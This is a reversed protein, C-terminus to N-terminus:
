QLVVFAGFAYQIWYQVQLPLASIRQCEGVPSEIKERHVFSASFGAEFVFRKLHLVLVEGTRYVTMKKFARRFPERDAKRCESCHWKDNEGLQEETGFADFCKVVSLGGSTKTNNRSPYSEHDERREFATVDFGSKHGEPSWAVVVVEREQFNVAGGEADAIEVITREASHGDGRMLQYPLNHRGWETDPTVFREVQAGM